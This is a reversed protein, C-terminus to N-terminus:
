VGVRDVDASAHSKSALDGPRVLQVTVTRDNHMVFSSAPRTVDAEKGDVMVKEIKIAGGSTKNHKLFPDILAKHLSKKLMKESLITSVVQDGIHLQFESSTVRGKGAGSPADAVRGSAPAGEESGDKRPPTTSPSHLKTDVYEGLGVTTTEITPNGDCQSRHVTADRMVALWNARLGMNFPNPRKKWAGRMFEYTTQGTSVFYCHLLFLLTVLTGMVAFYIGIVVSLFAQGFAKGFAAGSDLGAERELRGALHVVHFLSFSVFYVAGFSTLGVFCLFWFYNSRGVTNGLFICFHDFKLVCRDTKRDHSSRPPRVIGCTTCIKLEFEVGNIRKTRRVTEDPEKGLAGRPIVGPDSVAGVAMALSVLFWLLIGFVLVAPSVYCSAYPGVAGMWWFSPITIMLLWVMVGSYRTKKAPFRPTGLRPQASRVGAGALLLVVVSFLVAVVASAVSEGFSYGLCWGLDPPPSPPPPPPAAPPPDFDSPRCYPTADACANPCSYVLREVDLDFAPALTRCERGAWDACPWGGEIFSEDDFCRTHPQQPPSLPPAPPMPPPPPLMPPAPPRPSPPPPYCTPEGDACSVPCNILLKTIDFTASLDGLSIDDTATDTCFKGNWYSCSREEEEYDRPLSDECPSKPPNSPPPPAPLPWIRRPPMPPAPPPPPPAPPLPSQLTVVVKIKQGGQCHGPQSCTFYYEGVATVVAAFMNTPEGAAGGGHTTSALEEYENADCDLWQRDSNVLGVDHDSSYKFVLKTGVTTRLEQDPQPMANWYYLGDYRAPDVGIVLERTAAATFSLQGPSQPAALSAFLLAPGMGAM